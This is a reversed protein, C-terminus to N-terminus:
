VGLTFGGGGGGTPVDVGLGSLAVVGEDVEVPDVIKVGGVGM